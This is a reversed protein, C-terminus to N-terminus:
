VSLLSVFNLKVASKALHHCLRIWETNVNENYLIVYSFQLGTLANLIYGIQNLFNQINQSALWSLFFGRFTQEFTDIVMCYIILKFRERESIKKKKSRYKWSPFYWKTMRNPLRFLYYHFFTFSDLYGKKKLKLFWLRLKKKM